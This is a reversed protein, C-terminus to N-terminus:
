VNADGVSGNTRKLRYGIAIWWSALASELAFVPLPGILDPYSSLVSGVAIAFGVYGHAAWKASRLMVLSWCATAAAFVLAVLHYGGFYVAALLEADDPRTLSIGHVPYVFRGQVIGLVFCVISGAMLLMSGAVTKMPAISVLVRQAGYFGALLLGAGVVLAENGLM